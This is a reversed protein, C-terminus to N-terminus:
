DESTEIGFPRTVDFNVLVDRYKVTYIGSGEYFFMFFTNETIGESAWYLDGHFTINMNWQRLLEHFATMDGDLNDPANVLDGAPNFYEPTGLSAQIHNPRVRQRLCTATVTVPVAFVQHTNSVLWHIEEGVDFELTNNETHVVFSDGRTYERVEPHTATEHLSIEAEQMNIASSTSASGLLEKNDRATDIVNQVWDINPESTNEAYGSGACSTLFLVFAIINAMVFRNNM